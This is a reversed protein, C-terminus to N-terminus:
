PGGLRRHVPLCARRAIVPRDQDHLKQVHDGLRHGVSIEGLEARQRLVTWPVVDFQEVSQQGAVASGASDGIPHTRQEGLLIVDHGQVKRRM